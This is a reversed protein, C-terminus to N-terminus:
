DPDKTTSGDLKSEIRSLSSEMSDINASQRAINERMIGLPQDVRDFRSDIQSLLFLFSTGIAATVLGLAGWLWLKHQELRDVRTPITNEGGHGGGGGYNGPPQPAQVPRWPNGDQNLIVRADNSWNANPQNAKNTM